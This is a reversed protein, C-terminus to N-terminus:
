DVDSGSEEEADVSQRRDTGFFPLMIQEPEAFPLMCLGHPHHPLACHMVPQGDRQLTYRVREKTAALDPGPEAALDIWGTQIGLEDCVQKANTRVNTGVTAAEMGLDKRAITLAERIPVVGHVPQLMAVVQKVADDVSLRARPWIVSTAITEFHDFHGEFKYM